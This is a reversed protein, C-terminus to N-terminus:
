HGLGIINTKAAMKPGTEAPSVFNEASLFRKVIPVSVFLSNKITM